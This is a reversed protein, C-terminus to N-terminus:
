FPPLLNFTLTATISTGTESGTEPSCLVQQSINWLPLLRVETVDGQALALVRLGERTFAALTGDFDPPVSEPRVLSRIAEPSGKAFVLTTPPPQLSPTLATGQAASPPSPDPSPPPKLSLPLIADEGRPSLSANTAIAEDQLNLAALFPRASEPGPQSRPSQVVVM